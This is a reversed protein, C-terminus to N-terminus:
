ERSILSIVYSLLYTCVRWIAFLSLSKVLWPGASLLCQTLVPHFALRVFSHFSCTSLNPSEVNSYLM